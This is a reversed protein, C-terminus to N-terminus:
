RTSRRTIGTAVLASGLLWVAAPIPVASISTLQFELSPGGAVSGSLQGLRDGNFDLPNPPISSLQDSNMASSPQAGQDFLRLRLLFNGAQTSYRSYMEYQDWYGGGGTFDNFLGFVSGCNGCVESPFMTFTAAGIVVDVRSVANDFRGDTPDAVLDPSSNDIVYTM